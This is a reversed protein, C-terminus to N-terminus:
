RRISKKEHTGKLQGQYMVPAIGPLYKLMSGEVNGKEVLNKLNEVKQVLTNFQASYDVSTVGIADKLPNLTTSPHNQPTECQM